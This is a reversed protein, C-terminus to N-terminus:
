EGFFFIMLMISYSEDEEAIHDVYEFSGFLFFYRDVDLFSFQAM